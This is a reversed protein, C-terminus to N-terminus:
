EDRGGEPQKASARRQADELDQAILHQIYNSFSRREAAAAEMALKLLEEPM